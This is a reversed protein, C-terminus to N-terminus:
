AGDPPHPPSPSAVKNRGFWEKVGLSRMSALVLISFIISSAFIAMAEWGDTPELALVSYIVNLVSLVQLAIIYKWAWDWGKIMGFCFLIDIAGIIAGLFTVLSIEDTMSGALFTVAISAVGAIVLLLVMTAVARPVENTMPRLSTYSSKYSPRLRAKADM